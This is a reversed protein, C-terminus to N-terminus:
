NTLYMSECKFTYTCRKYRKQQTNTM